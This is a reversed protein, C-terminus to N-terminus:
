HLGLVANLISWGIIELLILSFFIRRGTRSIGGKNTKPLTYGQRLIKICLFLLGGSILLVGLISLFMTVPNTTINIMDLISFVLCVSILWINGSGLGLVYSRTISTNNM